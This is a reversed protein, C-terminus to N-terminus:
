QRGTADTPGGDGLGERPGGQSGPTQLTTAAGRGASERSGRDAEIINNVAVTIDINTKTLFGGVDDVPIQRLADAAANLNNLAIQLSPRDVQIDSDRKVTLPFRLAAVEPHANVFATAGAVDDIASAIAERVRELLPNVEGGRRGRQGV